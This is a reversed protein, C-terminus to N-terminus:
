NEDELKKLQQQLEEIVNKGKGFTSERFKYLQKLAYKIKEAQVWKSNAGAIFNISETGTAGNGFSKEYEEAEQELSKM